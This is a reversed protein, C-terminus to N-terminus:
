PGGVKTCAMGRLGGFSAPRLKDCTVGLKTSCWQVFQQTKADSLEKVPPKPVPPQQQTSSPASAARARGRLQREQHLALAM